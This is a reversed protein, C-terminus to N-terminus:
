RYRQCEPDEDQGHAGCAIATKFLEEDFACLPITGSNKYVEEQVHEGALSLVVFSNGTNSTRSREQIAVAM